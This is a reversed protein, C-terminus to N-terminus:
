DPLEDLAARAKAASVVNGKREYLALAEELAVAAEAPRGAARMVEALAVLADAHYGLFQTRSARHVAERAIAEAPELRGLKALALARVTPRRAFTGNWGPPAPHQESEDLIQLAELPRGQDSVARALDIAAAVHFGWTGPLRTAYEAAARAARESAAPNGALIEVRAATRELGNSLPILGLDESAARSRATLARAEEFRGQM